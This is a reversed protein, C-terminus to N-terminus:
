KKKDEAFQANGVIGIKHFGIQTRVRDIMCVIADYETDSAPRMIVEGNRLVKLANRSLKCDTTIEQVIKSRERRSARQWSETPGVTIDQLAAVFLLSFM